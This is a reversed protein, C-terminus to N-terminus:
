ISYWLLMLQYFYSLYVWERKFRGMMTVKIILNVIHNARFFLQITSLVPNEQIYQTLWDQHYFDTRYMQIIQMSFMFETIILTM